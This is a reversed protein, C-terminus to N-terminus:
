SFLEEITVKPDWPDTELIESVSIGDIFPEVSVRAYHIEPNDINNVDVIAKKILSQSQIPGFLFGKMVFSLTWIMFRGEEVDSDYSDERTVNQFVIPVDFCLDMNTMSKMSITYDPAFGPLIQEVIQLMDDQTKTTIYLNFYFDWPMPNFVTAASLAGKVASVRNLKPLKRQPDYTLDVMEFAMRPLTIAPKRSLNHDSMIRTLWKEKPSYSLPCTVRGVETNTGNYRLVDVDSFLAGFGITYKRILSHYFHNKFVGM